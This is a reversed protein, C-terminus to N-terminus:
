KPVEILPYTKPFSFSAKQKNDHFVFYGLCSLHYGFTLQRSDGRKAWGGMESQNGKVCSVRCLMDLDSFGSKSDQSQWKCGLYGSGQLVGEKALPDMEEVNVLPTGVVRSQLLFRHVLETGRPFISKSSSQTGGPSAHLVGWFQPSQGEHVKFAGGDRVARSFCATVCTAASHLQVAEQAPVQCM